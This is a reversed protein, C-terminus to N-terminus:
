NPPVERLQESVRMLDEITLANHKLILCKMAQSNMSRNATGIQYWVLMKNRLKKLPRIAEFSVKHTRAVKLMRTTDQNLKRAREGRTAPMWTQLFTNLRVPGLNTQPAAVDIAIDTIKAWTPRLPLLNLYGKMWMIEIAENRVKIDLLNLGGEECPYHLYELTVRPSKNDEWIFNRIMKMLADEIKTPMGQAQMLFQM